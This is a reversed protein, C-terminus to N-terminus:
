QLHLFTNDSFARIYNEIGNFEANSLTSFKCFSLYIGMIFPVIFGIIFAAFTPLAFISFYKKIAKEMIFKRELEM